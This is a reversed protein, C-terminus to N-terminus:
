IFLNNNNNNNNNNAMSVIYIICTHNYYNKVVRSNDQSIAGRMFWCRHSCDRLELLIIVEKM